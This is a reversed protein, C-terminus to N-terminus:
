SDVRYNSSSDAIETIREAIVIWFKNLEEKKCQFRFNIFPLISSYIYRYAFHCSKTQFVKFGHKTFSVKLSWFSIVATSKIM